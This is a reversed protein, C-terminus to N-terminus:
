DQTIVATEKKNNFYKAKDKNYMWCRVLHNDGIDELKPEEKRCIDTAFKCRPYFKCGSPLALPDPITGSIVELKKGPKDTLQPISKMLAMTYPHKPKKFINTVDAYEMAKGAYVVVVNDSVEAIVGLDHTIMLVAMGIEDRLKKVLELIQAQITVDLATTPEDAILLDPNCSLAMAIMIRQRQGGSLEHPYEYIRTEPNPMGVLKLMEVTKKLANRKNLKQHLAIAESIQEGITYVPNLSTMPEQFIMSIDNGRIKRMEEESKKLLDKGKFWIEGSVIKGPPNQILRLVSLASVSKGCGSEGVMGLTQGKKLTFDVGDVAKVVGDDTYFYTKLNKVQLLSDGM